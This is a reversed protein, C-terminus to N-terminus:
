QTPEPKSTPQPSPPRRASSSSRKQASIYSLLAETQKAAKVLNEGAEHLIESQFKAEGDPIGKWSDGLDSRKAGWSNTLVLANLGLHIGRETRRVLLRIEEVLEADLGVVESWTSQEVDPWRDVAEEFGRPWNNSQVIRLNQIVSACGGLAGLARRRQEEHLRAEQEHMRASASSRQTLLAVAAAIVAPVTALAILGWFPVDDM